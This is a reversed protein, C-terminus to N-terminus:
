HLTHYKVHFLATSSSRPGLSWTALCQGRLTLGRGCLRKRPQRMSLAGEWPLRIVASIKSGKREDRM